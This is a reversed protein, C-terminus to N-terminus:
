TSGAHIRSVYVSRYRFMLMDPKRRDESRPMYNATWMCGRRGMGCEETQAATVHVQVIQSAAQPLSGAATLPQSLPESVGGSEGVVM